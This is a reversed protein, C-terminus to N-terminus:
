PQRLSEQWSDGRSPVGAARLGPSRDVFAGQCRPICWELVAYLSPGFTWLKTVTRMDAKKAYKEDMM